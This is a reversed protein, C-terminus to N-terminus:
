AAIPLTAGGSMKIQFITEIVGPAILTFFGSVNVWGTNGAGTEKLYVATGAGGSTNLCISGPNATVFTNPDGAFAYLGAGSEEIILPFGPGTAVRQPEGFTNNGDIVTLASAGPDAGGANTAAGFRVEWRAAGLRMFMARAYASTSTKIWNPHGQPRSNSAIFGGQLETGYNRGPMTVVNPNSPTNTKNTLGALENPISVDGQADLTPTSQGRVKVSQPTFVGDAPDIEIVTDTAHFSSGYPSPINTFRNYNYHGHTGAQFIATQINEFHNSEVTHADFVGGSANEMNLGVGGAIGAGIVHNHRVSLRRINGAALNQIHIWEANAVEGGYIVNGVIAADYISYPGHGDGDRAVVAIAKFPGTTPTTGNVPFFFQNHLYGSGKMDRFSGDLTSAGCGYLKCNQATVGSGSIEIPILRIDRLVCSDVSGQGGGAGGVSIGFIGKNTQNPGIVHAGVITFDRYASDGAGLDDSPCFLEIALTDAAPNDGPYVFPSDIQINKIPNSLDADIKICSSLSVRGDYVGGRIGIRSIAGGTGGFNDGNRSALYIAGVNGPGWNLFDCDNIDIGDLLKGYICARIANRFRCANFKVNTVNKLLVADVNAATQNDANGDFEVGQILIDANGGVLDSNTVFPTDDVASADKQIIRAGPRGVLVLGSPLRLGSALFPNGGPVMLPIGFGAATDIADQLYPTDNTSGDQKAGFMNVSLNDSQGDTFSQFARAM